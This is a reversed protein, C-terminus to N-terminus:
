ELQKHMLFIMFILLHGTLSPSISCYFFFPQWLPKYLTVLSVCYLVYLCLFYTQETCSKQKFQWSVTFFLDNSRKLTKTDCSFFLDVLKNIVVNFVFFLVRTLIYFLFPFSLFQKKFFSFYISDFSFRFFFFFEAFTKQARQFRFTNLYTILVSVIGVLCVYM